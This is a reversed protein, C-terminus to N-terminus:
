FPALLDLLTERSQLEMNSPISCGLQKLLFFLDFSCDERVLRPSGPNVRPYYLIGRWKQGDFTLELYDPVEKDKSPEGFPDSVQIVFSRDNGKLAIDSFIPTLARVYSHWVALHTPEVNISECVM